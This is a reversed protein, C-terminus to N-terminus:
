GRALGGRQVSSWLLGLRLAAGGLVWILRRGDVVADGKAHTRIVWWPILALAIQPRAVGLDAEIRRVRQKILALEDSPTM